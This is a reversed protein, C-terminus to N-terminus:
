ALRYMVDTRLVYKTGRTVPAGRHELPHEFLLARGSAPAISFVDGGSQIDTTGGEVDGNLYLMATLFSREETDRVFAGDQHWDFYQGPGYRYIRLRENLGVPHYTAGRSVIAGWEAVAEFLRLWLGEARPPDDFMVRTNNRVGPVMEFGFATKIPAAEFGISEGLEIWQICEAHSLVVEVTFKVERM